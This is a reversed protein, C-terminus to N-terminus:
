SGIEAGLKRLSEMYYVVHPWPVDPPLSHDTAAIYGGEELLPRIRALEADIAAPGRALARKDIGGRMRLERGYKRRVAVVDMGAQVEFPYLLNIGAELWIPILERIDGDSDLSIFEVGRGRLFEVVRRYRPLLYKRALSPGLLPGTKYAMDEWFGFEDIKVQDLIQSMMSIMFEVEAELMEELFAPDDYFLLCLKEVGVLNRLPGFFGGWRDAIVSFPAESQALGQLQEIWDAGIRAGLDPRMRERWFRRFDERTEVPFRLFQPMSSDAATKFERMVIGEHNVFTVTNEDEGLVKREFRPTPYFWWSRWNWSDTGFLEEYSRGDYGEQKWREM